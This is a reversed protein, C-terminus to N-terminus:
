PFVLIKKLNQGEREFFELEFYFPLGTNVSIKRAHTIMAIMSNMYMIAPLFTKIRLQM